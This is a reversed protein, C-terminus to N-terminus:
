SNLQWLTFNLFLAFSVWLLYPIMLWAAIKQQTYFIQICWVIAFWLIIIEVLAWGIQQMGFFVFSWGTNLTFQLIFIGLAKKREPTNFGERWFQYIAIGMLTYLLTWVPGFVWNPPQFSPKNITNFWVTNPSTALAGAVGAINCATISTILKIANRM